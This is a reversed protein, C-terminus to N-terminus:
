KRVGLLNLYISYESTHPIFFVLNTRLEKFIDEDVSNMEPWTFNELTESKSSLDVLCIHTAILRDVRVRFMLNFMIQSEKPFMEELLDIIDEEDYNNNELNQMEAMLSHYQAQHIQYMKFIDMM